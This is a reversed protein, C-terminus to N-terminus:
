ELVCYIRNCCLQVSTCTFELVMSAVLPGKSVDNQQQTHTHTHAHVTPSPTTNHSNQQQTPSIVPIHVNGHASGQGWCCDIMQSLGRVEPHTQSASDALGGTEPESRWVRGPRGWAARLQRLVARMACSVNWWPRFGMEGECCQGCPTGCLAHTDLFGVAPHEPHIFPFAGM